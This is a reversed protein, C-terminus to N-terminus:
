ALGLPPIHRRHDVQPPHVVLTASGFLVAVLSRAPPELCDLLPMGLRLAEETEQESVSQSELLAVSVGSSPPEYVLKAGGLFAVRLRLEIDPPHVALTAADCLVIDFCLTPPAFRFTASMGVCM